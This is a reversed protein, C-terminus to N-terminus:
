TGNAVNKACHLQLCEVFGMPGSDKHYYHLHVFERFLALVFPSSPPLGTLLTVFQFNAKMKSIRRILEAGSMGPMNYDVILHNWAEKGQKEILSLAGEGNGAETVEFGATSLIRSYLGREFDCDDVLLVTKNV